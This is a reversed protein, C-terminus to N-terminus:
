FSCCLSLSLFLLATAARERHLEIPFEKRSANEESDTRKGGNGAVHSDDHDDDNTTTAM